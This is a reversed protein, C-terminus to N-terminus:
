SVRVFGAGAFVKRGTASLVLDIFEKALDTHAGDKVLGIPYRTTAAKSNRFKIERLTQSHAVYDTHYIFAADVEGSVLKAVVTSVKAELSVPKSKVRGTSLLALDTAIGCPALHACQIWKVRPKNLDSLRNIHFSNGKPTALVIQNSAFLTVRPVRSKALAMDTESASAFVDAPAGSNIQTALTSSALFSFLVKVGPHRREFAVGLTSFTQNLSSAAFVTLTAKENKQLAASAPPSFSSLLSLALLPVFVRSRM